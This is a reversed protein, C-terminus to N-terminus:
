DLKTWGFAALPTAGEIHVSSWQNTIPDYVECINQCLQPLHSKSSQNGSIGGYVYVKNDLTGLLFNARKEQMSELNMWQGTAPKGAIVEKMNFGIVSNTFSSQMPTEGVKGGVVLM